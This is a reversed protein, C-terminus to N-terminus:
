KANKEVSTFKSKKVIASSVQDRNCTNLSGEAMASMVQENEDLLFQVTESLATAVNAHTGELQGALCIYDEIQCFCTSELLLECMDLIFM